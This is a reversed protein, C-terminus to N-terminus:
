HTEEEEAADLKEMEEKIKEIEKQLEVDKKLAKEEAKAAEIQEALKRAYALAYEIDRAVDDLKRAFFSRREFEDNYVLFDDIKNKIEKQHMHLSDTLRVVLGTPRAMALEEAKEAIGEYSIRDSHYKRELFVLSDKSPPETGAILARADQLTTVALPYEKKMIHGYAKLLGGEAQVVPKKSYGILKEGAKRCDIWQRAKVATWALGLLADEYFYSEQSVKRLASVAKSLSLEEYFIYGLFIYSRNLIEKEHGTEIDAEIIDAFADIASQTDERYIHAIALSHRAFVYDPHGPPVLSFLRVAEAYNAEKLATEAMLYCAHYKLSDPTDIRNIQSFLAQVKDSDGNRYAIRMRGLNAHDAAESRPYKEVMERYGEASAGRMDLKEQCSHYYYEVWDNKFFDPFRSLIQGFIFFANWYKGMAYLTRAKNYLDNPTTDLMRSMRRAYLEERHPGIEARAYVTHTSARDGETKLNYQYIVSLDRGNNMGPMNVGGSLGWFDVANDNFGMQYYLKFMRLIWVGCRWSLGWELQKASKIWSESGSNFKKFEDANAFFDKLDFDLGSEIRNEWFTSLLGLKLDRSYEGKNGFKPVYTNNMSPAILNVTSIGAIHNGLVPHRIIRYSAGLDLGFGRVPDGFNSQYAINFNAGVSLKQWPNIAYTMMIFSNTNKETEGGPIIRGQSDFSGEQVDGDGEGIWNIGASQHLGIPVTLGLEWLTFERQLVPAIAGRVSIYDEEILFAANTLPSYSSHIDRWRQTLLYEGPLGDTYIDGAVLLVAAIPVIMKKLYEANEM